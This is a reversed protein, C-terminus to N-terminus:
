APKRSRLIWNGAFNTIRYTFRNHGPPLDSFSVLVDFTKPVSEKFQIIHVVLGSRGTTTEFFQGTPPAVASNYSRVAPQSGVFRAIFGRSPPTGGNGFALFCVPPLPPQMQTLIIRVLNETMETEYLSADVVPHAPPHKWWWGGAMAAVLLIAIILRKM